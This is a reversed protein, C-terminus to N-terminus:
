RERGGWGAIDISLKDNKKDGPSLVNVNRICQCVEVMNENEMDENERM